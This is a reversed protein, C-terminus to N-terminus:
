REGERVFSWMMDLIFLAMEWLNEFVGLEFAGGATLEGHETM